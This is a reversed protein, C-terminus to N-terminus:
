RLTFTMEITVLVAAPQGRFTGPVFQWQRAARIAEADLDSHLSHAVRLDGVTGDAQVVAQIVVGGEAKDQM